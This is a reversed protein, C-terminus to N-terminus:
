LRNPDPSVNRSHRRTHSVRSQQPLRAAINGTLVSIIM